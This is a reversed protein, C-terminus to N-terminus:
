KKNVEFASATKKMADSRAGKNIKKVLGQLVADPDQPYILTKPANNLPPIIFILNSPMFFISISYFIIKARM